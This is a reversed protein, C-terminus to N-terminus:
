MTFQKSHSFDLFINGAPYSFSCARKHQSFHQSVCVEAIICLILKTKYAEDNINLYYVVDEEAVGHANGLIREGCNCYVHQPQWSSSRIVFLLAM